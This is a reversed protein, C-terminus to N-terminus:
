LLNKLGLSDKGDWVKFNRFYCNRSWDQSISNSFRIFFSLCSIWFKFDIFWILSNYISSLNGRKSILWAKTRLKTGFVCYLELVKNQITYSGKLDFFYSLVFLFIFCRYINYSEVYARWKILCSTWFFLSKWSNKRENPVDISILM